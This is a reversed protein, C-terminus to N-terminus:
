VDIFRLVVPLLSYMYMLGQFYSKQCSVETRITRSGQGPCTNLYVDFLFRPDTVNLNQDVDLSAELGQLGGFVVM